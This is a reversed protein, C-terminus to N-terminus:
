VGLFGLFAIVIILFIATPLNCVAVGGGGVSGCCCCTNANGIAAAVTIAVRAAAATTAIAVNAAAAVTMGVNVVQVMQRQVHLIFGVLITEGAIFFGTVNAIMFVLWFAMQLSSLIMMVVVMTMMMVMMMMALMKM